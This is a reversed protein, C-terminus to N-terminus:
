DPLGLPATPSLKGSRLVFTADRTFPTAPTKGNAPTTWGTYRVSLLAGAVGPGVHGEYDYHDCRDCGSSLSGAIPIRGLVAPARPALDIVWDSVTAQGQGLYSSPLLALPRGGLREIVVSNPRM